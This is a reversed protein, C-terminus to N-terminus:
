DKKKIADYYGKEIEFDIIEYNGKYFKRGYVVIDYKKGVLFSKKIGYIVISYISDREQIIGKKAEIAVVKVGQLLMPFHPKKTFIAGISGVTIRKKLKKFVRDTSFSAVIPLHDSYGRGKHRKNKYEWRFIYGKKHFLYSKKFVRFSDNIYEVGKGNFLTSPLLIADLGQKKGYFNHSWRKYNPIELWLNYHELRNTFNVPRIFSNERNITKLIHNIGTRSHTDNHKKEIHKYEDYDSNFDGLLIYESEKPLTKLRKQLAKASLIRKSEKSSKSKWHNVYIFLPKNNFIYKAELINRYGLAGNVTIEKVSKIPYKSLLAVQIASGRKHTIASYNYFCGVKRLLQQLKKLVRNNEIEQLGLIDANIDCVVEAINLLKKRFIKQNWGHKHPIYSSYEHGSYEMDFLNEVNYSAVKFDFPYLILPLFFLFLFKSFNPISQNIEM